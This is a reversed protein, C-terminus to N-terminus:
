QSHCHRSHTTSQAFANTCSNTFTLQTSPHLMSHQKHRHQCATPVSTGLLAILQQLKEAFHLDLPLAPNNHPTPGNIPVGRPWFTCQCLSIACASSCSQISTCPALFLANLMLLTFHTSACVSLVHVAAHSCAQARPWFFCQVHQLDSTHFTYQCLCIACASSCSQMSTCPAL